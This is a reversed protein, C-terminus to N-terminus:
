WSFIGDWWSFIGEHFPQVNKKGSAWFSVFFSVGFVFFLGFFVFSDFFFLYFHLLPFNLLFSVLITNQTNTNYLGLFQVMLLIVTNKIHVTNLVSSAKHVWKTCTQPSNLVILENKCSIPCVVKKYMNQLSSWYLIAFYKTLSM